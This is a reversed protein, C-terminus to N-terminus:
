CLSLGMGAGFKSLLLEEMYLVPDIVPVNYQKALRKCLTTKGAKPPGVVFIALRPPPTLPSLISNHEKLFLSPQEIFEKRNSDSSFYYVCNRHVAPYRCVSFILLM